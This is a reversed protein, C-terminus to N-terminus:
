RKKEYVKKGNKSYHYVGGRPGVHLRDDSSASPSTSSFTPPGDGRSKTANNGEATELDTIGKVIQDVTREDIYLLVDRGLAYKRGIAAADQEFERKYVKSRLSLDVAGAKVRAAKKASGLEVKIESMRAKLAATNDDEIKLSLKAAETASRLFKPNIFVTKGSDSGTIIRVKALDPKIPGVYEVGQLIPKNRSYGDFMVVMSRYQGTVAKAMAEPTMSRLTAVTAEDIAAFVPGGGEELVVLRDGPNIALLCFVVPFVGM